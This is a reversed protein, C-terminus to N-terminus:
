YSPVAITIGAPVNASDLGNLKVIDSIVDRPDLGPAIAEAVSWLSQGDAITVTDLATAPITADGAAAPAANLGFALAGVLVPAIALSAFVARGRRTLRLRTSAPAFNLTAATM